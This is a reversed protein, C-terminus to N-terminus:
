QVQGEGHGGGLHPQEGAQGTEEDQQQHQAAVGQKDLGAAVPPYLLNKPAQGVADPDSVLGLKM